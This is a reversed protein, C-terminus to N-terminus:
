AIIDNRIEIIDKELEAIMSMIREIRKKGERTESDFDVNVEKDLLDFPTRLEELKTLYHDIVDDDSYNKLMEILNDLSYKQESVREFVEIDKSEKAIHMAIYLAETWGGLIIQAAASYRENEKLYDDTTVYVENAIIILSDKDNINRDFREATNLFYDGPIGLEESLKQMASFYRGAFEIQEFIRAYSLDVAYVGINLAKKSSTIYEPIKSTSNLLDPNFVAGISEFLTSMEVSLYMNYFIPLGAGITDVSNIVKKGEELSIGEFDISDTESKVGSKCSIIVALIFVAPIFIFQRQKM